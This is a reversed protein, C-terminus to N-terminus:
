ANERDDEEQIRMQEDLIREALNLSKYPGDILNGDYDGIWYGDELEIIEWQNM